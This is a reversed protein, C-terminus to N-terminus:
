TISLLSITLYFVTENTNRTVLAKTRIVSSYKLMATLNINCKIRCQETQAVNYGSVVTQLLILSMLSHTRNKNM